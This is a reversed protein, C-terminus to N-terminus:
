RLGDLISAVEEYTTPACLVQAVTGDSFVFFTEPVGQVGLAESVSM